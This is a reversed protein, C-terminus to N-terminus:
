ISAFDGMLANYEEVDLPSRTQTGESVMEPGASPDEDSHWSSTEESPEDFSRIQCLYNVVAEESPADHLRVQPFDQYTPPLDCLVISVQAIRMLSAFDPHQIIAIGTTEGIGLAQRYREFAAPFGVGEDIEGPISNVYERQRMYEISRGMGTALLAFYSTTEEGM